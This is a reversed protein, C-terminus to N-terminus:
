GSAVTLKGGGPLQYSGTLTTGRGATATITVGARANIGTASTVGVLTVTSNGSATWNSGSGLVLSAKSIAGTLKSAELSVAMAREPDAHVVNGSLTTHKFAVNIGPTSAGNVKTRNPDPNIISHILVGNAPAITAGDVALNLNASRVLIGDGATSIKGGTMSVTASESPQGMVNHVMVASMKSTGTVNALNLVGTGAVIALYKGSNMTSDNIQVSCHNDSYVGYGQGLMTITSHNAELYAGSGCSDTSLAAWGAGIITSNYYYTKSGSLTLATRATGSIGLGTPPSKMGPGPKPTYGAPLKGGNSRLTSNYVKLVSGDLTSVASATLGTTTITSNKVTLTAGGETVAGAGLGVFDNSGNGNLNITAGSLTYNTKAGRVVLGSFDDANGTVRVGSASTSTVTGAAVASPTSKAKAYSGDQVYIAATCSTSTSQGAQPPAGGGQGPAAPGAGSQAPSTVSSRSAAPTSVASGCGASAMAVAVLVAFTRRGRLGHLNMGAHVIGM